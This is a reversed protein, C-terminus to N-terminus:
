CTLYASDYTLTFENKLFIIIPHRKITLYMLFHFPIVGCPISLLHSQSSTTKPGSEAAQVNGGAFHGM